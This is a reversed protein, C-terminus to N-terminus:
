IIEYKFVKFDNKYIRNIKDLTRRTYYKMFHKHKTKGIISLKRNQIRMGSHNEINDCLKEFDDEIKEFKGIFDVNSAMGNIFDTQPAVHIGIRKQIWSPPETLCRKSSEENFDYFQEIKDIFDEFSTIDSLYEKRHNNIGWTYASVLRSYPNRSFCWKYYENPDKGMETIEKEFMSLSFHKKEAEFGAFEMQEMSQGATKPIHVFIAKFKHNVM